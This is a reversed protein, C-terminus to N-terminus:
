EFEEKNSIDFANTRKNEGLFGITRRRPNDLSGEYSVDGEKADTTLKHSVIMDLPMSAM